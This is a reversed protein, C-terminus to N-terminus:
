KTAVFLNVNGISMRGGGTFQITNDGSRLDGVNVPIVLSRTGNSDCNQQPTVPYTQQRSNLRYAISTYNDECSNNFSRTSAVGRM